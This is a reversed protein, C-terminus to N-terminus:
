TGDALLHHGIRHDVLRTQMTEAGVTNLRVIALTLLLTGQTAHSDAVSALQAWVLVDCGQHRMQRLLELLNGAHILKLINLDLALEDTILFFEFLFPVLLLTEESILLLALICFCSLFSMLTQGFFTLLFAEELLPGLAGSSESTFTTAQVSLVHDFQNFLLLLAQRVHEQWNIYCKHKLELM